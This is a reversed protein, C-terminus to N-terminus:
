GTESGAIHFHSSEVRGSILNGCQNTPSKLFESIHCQTVPNTNESTELFMTGEDELAPPELVFREQAGRGM